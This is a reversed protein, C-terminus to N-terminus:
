LEPTKWSSEERDGDGTREGDKSEEDQTDQCSERKEAKCGNM